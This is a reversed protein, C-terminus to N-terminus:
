PSSFDLALLLFKIEKIVETLNQLTYKMGSQIQSCTHQEVRHSKGSSGYNDVTRM